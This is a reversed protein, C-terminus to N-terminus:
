QQWKVEPINKSWNVFRAALFLWDSLRNLYIIFDKNLPVEKQLSVIRREARRCVTRALHLDAGLSTGGPLIFEKLEPLQATWQDMQRELQNIAEQDLSPLRASLNQDDCAMHSGLIFLSNQILIINQSLGKLQPDIQASSLAKGLFSNLEDITGYAELRLHDKSVRQGSFLSSEGQDGTKTYIKTSM